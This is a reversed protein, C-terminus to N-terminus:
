ATKERTYGGFGLVTLLGKLKTTFHALSRVKLINKVLTSPRLYFRRYCVKLLESLEERSLHEEWIPIYANPTPNLVYENWFNRPLVNKKVGEAYLETDSYPILINFQAYDSGSKIAFDLSELIDERSKHTPLGIIWNTSTEIGVKKCIAISDIVQKTTIKKKIAKLDVDRAAEVGFMIQRCGAKQAKRVMEETVQDVRGRFSWIIDPYHELIADSMDIVRKTTINFMDDFFVFERTGQSYHWGIESLTREITYSRFTRYPRNCYTCIYPCGRSTAIVGVINGTGIASKYKDLPLLDFAPPPLANIDEIYGEKGNHIIRGNEKFSIGEVTSLPAGKELADVLNTFIIEGEGRVGFDVEPHHLTENTYTRVHSGGLCVFCGPLNKKVLRAVQLVDYFTPTFATIGVIDPKNDIIRQEIQEYDLKEALADLIRVDHNSYKALYGALYSLGIPPFAGIDEATTDWDSTTTAACKTPASILLIKM